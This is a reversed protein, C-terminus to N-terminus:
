SECAVLSTLFSILQLVEKRRSVLFAIAFNHQLFAGCSKMGSSTLRGLLQAM